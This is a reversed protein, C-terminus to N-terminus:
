DLSSKKRHNRNNFENDAQGKMRSFPTAEIGFKKLQKAYNGPLTNMCGVDDFVVRVDLGNKAKEKLLELICDWFEGQEIIFYELYIFKEASQLDVLMSQWM